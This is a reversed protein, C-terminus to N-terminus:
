SFYSRDYAKFTAVLAITTISDALNKRNGELDSWFVQFAPDAFELEIFKLM